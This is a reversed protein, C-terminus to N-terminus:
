TMGDEQIAHSPKQMSLTDNAFASVLFFLFIKFRRM